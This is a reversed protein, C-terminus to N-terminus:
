GYSHGDVKLFATVVAKIQYAQTNDVTQVTYTAAYDEWHDGVQVIADHAGVMEFEFSRVTGRDTQAKEAGDLKSTRFKAFVQPERPAAPLYDHGGGPKEIKTGVAPILAIPQGRLALLEGVAARADATM